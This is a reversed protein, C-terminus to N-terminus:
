KPRSYDGIAEMVDRGNDALLESETIYQLQFCFPAVWSDSILAVQNFFEAQENANMECFVTALEKPSVEIEVEVTKKM